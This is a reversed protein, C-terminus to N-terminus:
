EQREAPKYFREFKPGPATRFLTAVRNLGARSASDTARDGVTLRVLPAWISLRRSFFMEAGSPWPHRRRSQARSSDRVFVTHIAFRM